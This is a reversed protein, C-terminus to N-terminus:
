SSSLFLKYVLPSREIFSICDSKPSSKPKTATPSISILSRSVFAAFFATSSTFYTRETSSNSDTPLFYSIYPEVECRFDDFYCNYIYDEGYDNMLKLMRKPHIAKKIIEDNLEQNKEKIKISKKKEYFHWVISKKM